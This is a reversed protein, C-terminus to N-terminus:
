FRIVFSICTGLEHNSQSGLEKLTGLEKYHLFWSLESLRTHEVSTVLAGHLRVRCQQGGVGLMTLHVHQTRKWVRDRTTGFLKFCFPRLLEM